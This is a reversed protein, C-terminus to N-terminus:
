LGSFHASYIVVLILRMLLSLAMVSLIGKKDCQEDLKRKLSLQHDSPGKRRLEELEKQLQEIDKDYQQREKETFALLYISSLRSPLIGLTSELLVTKESIQHKVLEQLISNSKRCFFKSSAVNQKVTQEITNDIANLEEEV